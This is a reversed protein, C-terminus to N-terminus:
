GGSNIQAAYISGVLRIVLIRARWLANLLGFERLLGVNLSVGLAYRKGSSIRPVHIVLAHCGVAADTYLRKRRSDRRSNNNVPTM